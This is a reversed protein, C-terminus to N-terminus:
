CACLQDRQQNLCSLTRFGGGWGMGGGGDSVTAAHVPPPPDPVLLVSNASVLSNAFIFVGLQKRFYISGVALATPSDGRREGNGSSESNGCMEGDRASHPEAPPVNRPQKGLRPPGPNVHRGRGQSQPVSSRLATQARLRQSRTEAERYNTAHFQHPHAGTVDSRAAQWVAGSETHTRTHQTHTHM